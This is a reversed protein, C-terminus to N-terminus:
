SGGSAWPWVLSWGPGRFLTGVSTLVVAEMLFWTMIWFSLPKSNLWGLFGRGQRGGSRAALAMFFAIIWVPALADWAHARVLVVTILAVIIGTISLRQSQHRAWLNEGKTNVNFFPIVILAIVILGPLVIGAVFPPFYHLLEQLGTFYWPAKAPNPTHLTDALQELPANWRLAIMGLIAALLEIAIIERFLLERYSLTKEEAGPAAPDADSKQVSASPLPVGQPSVEYMGGDQHLRWLHISVLLITTLPLIMTHLVYFRLLANANVTNGGMLVFRLKTGVVPISSMINAGVTTGWYSLQDWPLLYGTYSLLLTLLLLCVGVVWNLERPPRFARRYFVKAMHAFVLFVMAHASWRHLNRLFVGSTVVFQLDKMDAYGQPISPHYYLMLLLGTLIQITLTGLTLAGLYWTVRFGLQPERVRASFIQKFDERWRVMAQIPNRIAGGSDAQIAKPM